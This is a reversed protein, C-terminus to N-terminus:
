GVPMPLLEANGQLGSRPIFYYHIDYNGQQLILYDESGTLLYFLSSRFNELSITAAVEGQYTCVYLNVEEPWAADSWLPLTTTVYYLYDEDLGCLTLPQALPPFDEETLAVAGAQDEGPPIYFHTSAILQDGAENVGTVEHDNVYCGQAGMYLFAGTHTTEYLISSQGTKRDVQYYCAGAGNELPYLYFYLSDGYCDLRNLSAAPYQDTQFLIESKEPNEMPSKQITITKGFDGYMTMGLYLEGDCICFGSISQRPEYFVTRQTGDLSLQYIVSEYVNDPSNACVYLHDQFYAVSAAVDFFADCEYLEMTNESTNKDHLCEPKSCLVTSKQLDPTIYYLYGDRFAYYGLPTEVMASGAPTIYGGQPFDEDIAMVATGTERSCGALALPLLLFPVLLRCLVSCNM